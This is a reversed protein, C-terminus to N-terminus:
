LNIWSLPARVATCRDMQPQRSLFRSLNGNEMWPSIMALQNRYRAVGILGLVNPHQCKSWVYLEHAARQRKPSTSDNLSHISRVKLQKRGDDSSDICLRLCKLSIKSGDKLAGQYVDGFGGTAVPFEGCGSLDLRHTVDGCGHNGLHILIEAVSQLLTITLQSRSRAHMVVMEGNIM